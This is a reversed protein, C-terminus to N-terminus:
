INVCAGPIQHSSNARGLVKKMMSLYFDLKEGKKMMEVSTNADALNQRGRKSKKGGPESPPKYFDRLLLLANRWRTQSAAYRELAVKNIKGPLTIEGPDGQPMYVDSLAGVCRLSPFYQQQRKHSKGHPIWLSSAIMKDFYLTARALRAPIRSHEPTGPTEM